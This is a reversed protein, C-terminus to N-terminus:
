RFLLDPYVYQHAKLGEFIIPKWSYGKIQGWAAFTLSFCEKWINVLRPMKEALLKKFHANQNVKKMAKMIELM